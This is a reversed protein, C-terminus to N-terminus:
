NSKKGSNVPESGRLSQWPDYKKDPMRGIASNYGKDDPKTKKEEAPQEKKSRGSSMGQAYSPATLLAIAVALLLTRM